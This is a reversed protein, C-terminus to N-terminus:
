SQFSVSTNSDYSFFNVSSTLKKLTEKIVNVTPRNSPNSVTCDDILQSLINSMVAYNSLTCKFSVDVFKELVDEDYSYRDIENDSLLSQRCAMDKLVIGYSGLFM